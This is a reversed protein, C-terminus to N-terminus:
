TEVADKNEAIDKRMRKSVYPQIVIPVDPGSDVEPLKQKEMQFEKRSENRSGSQWVRGFNPLWDADFNNVIEGRKEMELELKRREAWAAGVRKPNLKQSKVSKRSSPALGSESVGATIHHLQIEEVTDFWPPPAGAHVNDKSVQPLLPLSQTSSQSAQKSSGGNCLRGVAKNSPSCDVSSAGSSALFGNQKDAYDQPCTITEGMGHMGHAYSYSHEGAAPLFTDCLFSGVAAIGHVERPFEQQRENASSQLPVFSNSNSSNFSYIELNNKTDSILQNHIDKSAGLSPGCAEGNALPDSNELVRCRKEWKSLDSESVRFSGVRDMGGGNKWMFDKLNKLHEPSALHNIANCAFLSNLEHIDSDCFVCWLRNRSAHELRIVTPNKIFFRVDSLKNNFRSLFSSLSKIHNPLYKHKRGLNHNLKCVKCYEFEMNHNQKQKKKKEEM